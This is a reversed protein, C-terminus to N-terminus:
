ARARGARRASGIVGFGLAFLLAATPEPVVGAAGTLTITYTGANGGGMWSTLPGPDTPGCVVNFGCAFINSGGSFPDINFGSIGLLYEGALLSSYLAHGAPLTSQTGVSDDNSAIGTGDLHFLFLQTDFAAGGVTTASFAGPDTITIRYLDPDSVPTIEGTISELPGVGFVAQATGPLDGADGVEAHSFAQASGALALVTGLTVISPVWRMVAEEAACAVDHEAQPDPTL